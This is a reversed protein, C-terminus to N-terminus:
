NRIEYISAPHSGSKLKYKGLGLNSKYFIRENSLVWLANDEVHISLLEEDSGLDFNIKEFKNDELKIVCLPSLIWILSDQPEIEIVSESNLFNELSYSNIQEGEIISIGNPHGCLIKNNRTALCSIMNNLLGKHTDYRTIKSYIGKKYLGNNTTGLYLNNFSSAIDTFKGDPIVTEKTWKDEQYYYVSDDALFYQNNAHHLLGDSKLKTNTWEKSEKDIILIDQDATPYFYTQENSSFNGKPVILQKKGFDEIRILKGNQLEYIGDTAVIQIFGEEISILDIPDINVPIPFIADVQANLQGVILFIILTRILTKTKIKQRYAPSAFSAYLKCIYSV